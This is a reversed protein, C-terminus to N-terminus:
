LQQATTQRNAFVEFEWDIQFEFLAVFHYWATLTNSANNFIIETYWYYKLTLYMVILNYVFRKTQKYIM